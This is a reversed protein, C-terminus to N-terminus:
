RECGAGTPRGAFFRSVGQATIGAALRSHVPVPHPLGRGGTSLREGM